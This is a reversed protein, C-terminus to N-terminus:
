VSSTQRNQDSLTRAQRARLMVAAAATSTVVAGCEMALSLDALGSIFGLKFGFLGTTLVLVFGLITGAMLALAGLVVVLRRTVLLALACLLASVGQVIFLPGLTAVHRYAIDYLHFHLIGSVTVLAATVVVLALAVPGSATTSLAVTLPSSRTTNM